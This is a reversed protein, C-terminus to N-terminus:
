ELWIGDGGEERALRAAVALRTSAANGSSVDESRRRWGRGQKAAAPWTRAAGGDAVDESCRRRGRGRQAAASWSSAAGGGAPPRTRGAGRAAALLGREKARQQWGGPVVRTVAPFLARRRCSGHAGGSPLQFWTDGGPVMRAAWLNEVRRRCDGTHRRREAAAVPGSAANDM